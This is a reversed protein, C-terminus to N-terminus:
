QAPCEAFFAILVCPGGETRSNMDDNLGYSFTVEGM